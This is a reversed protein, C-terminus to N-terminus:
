PGSLCAGRCHDLRVRAVRRSFTGRGRTGTIALAALAGAIGLASIVPAGTEVSMSGFVSLAAGPDNKSGFPFGAGGMVWWLGLLGYALSWAGAAYGVWSTWRRLSSPARRVTRAAKERLAQAM